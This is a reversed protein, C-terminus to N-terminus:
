QKPNVIKTSLLHVIPSQAFRARLSMLLDHFHKTGPHPPPPQLKFIDPTTNWAHCVAEFPTKWRLAKLHKAFNYASVFATVHAKLSELSPYHFTKITADKVTRNMREAQGNTWPHYPKTLKHTIANEAYVRDFIHAGLFRRTPGNRNRPLDAFAMGNDTLVTHIAYPFAAVVGRLFDAGNMKGADDRFEVYTFKSVRDIALFMNLKGEALRLESIDTHVTGIATDAFRGLRSVKDPDDPLRSISHRELCRHLSSRTLKPITDRLCGLVDDLPLLTRRRFEVVMAEEEPSLVTSHPATPGM